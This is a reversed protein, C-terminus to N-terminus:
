NATLLFMHATFSQWLFLEGVTLLSHDSVCPNCTYHGCFRHVHICDAYVRSQDICYVSLSGLSVTLSGSENIIHGIKIM